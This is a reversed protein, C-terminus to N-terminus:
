RQDERTSTATSYCDPLAPDDPHCLPGIDSRWGELYPLERSCAVCTLPRDHCHHTCDVIEDTAEDLALGACAKCKYPDACDPSLPM